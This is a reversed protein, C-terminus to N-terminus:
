HEKMFSMVYKRFSSSCSAIRFSNAAMLETNITITTLPLIGWVNIFFNHLRAKIKILKHYDKLITMVYM